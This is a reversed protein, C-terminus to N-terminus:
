WAADDRIYGDPLIADDFPIDEKASSHFYAVVDLNLVIDGYVFPYGEFVADKSGDQVKVLTIM